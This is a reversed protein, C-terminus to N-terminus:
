SLVVHIQLRESCDQLIAALPTNAHAGSEMEEILTAKESTPAILMIKKSASLTPYDLTAREAPPKPSIVQTLFKGATNKKNWITGPFLSAIHGDMGFGLILLDAPWQWAALTAEANDDLLWLPKFDRMQGANSEPHDLPVLREDTSTININQWQANEIRRMAQYIAMTSTGGSFIVTAKGPSAALESIEGAIAAGMDETSAHTQKKM